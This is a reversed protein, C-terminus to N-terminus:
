GQQQPGGQKEHQGRAASRPLRRLVFLRSFRAGMGQSEGAFFMQGINPLKRKAPLAGLGIEGRVVLIQGELMGTSVGSPLGALGFGVGFIILLPLPRVV